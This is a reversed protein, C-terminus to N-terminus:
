AICLACSLNLVDATHQVLLLLLNPPCITLIFLIVAVSPPLFGLGFWQYKKGWGEQETYNQVHLYSMGGSLHKASLGACQETNQM